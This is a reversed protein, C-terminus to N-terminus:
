SLTSDVIALSGARQVYDDPTLMRAGTEGTPTTSTPILRAGPAFLSRFREWNRTGAPGSIVDYLSAVIADMTKVDDPNAAPTTTAPNRSTSPTQSNTKMATIHCITIAVLIQILFRVRIRM